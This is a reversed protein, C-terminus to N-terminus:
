LTMGHMNDLNFKCFKAELHLAAQWFFMNQINQRRFIQATKTKLGIHLNASNRECFEILTLSYFFDASVYVAICYTSDVHLANFTIHVVYLLHRM